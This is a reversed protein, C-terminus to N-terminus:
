AHGFYWSASQEFDSDVVTIRVNRRKITFSGGQLENLSLKNNRAKKALEGIDKEIDAFTKRDADRVVPVVLGDPAAVAIGIDYFQKIM